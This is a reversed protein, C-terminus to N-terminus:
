ERIDKNSINLKHVEAIGENFDYTRMMIGDYEKAGNDTLIIRGTYNISRVLDEKIIHWHGDIKVLLYSM